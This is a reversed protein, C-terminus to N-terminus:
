FSNKVCLRLPIFFSAFIVFGLGYQHKSPTNAFSEKRSDIARRLAHQARIIEADRCWGFLYTAARQVCVGSIKFACAFESALVDLSEIRVRRDDCVRAATPCHERRVRM